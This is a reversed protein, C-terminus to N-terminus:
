SQPGRWARNLPVHHISVLKANKVRDRGRAAEGMGALAQAQRLGGDAALDARQLFLNGRGQELAM